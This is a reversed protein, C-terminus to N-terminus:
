ASAAALTDLQQTLSREYVDDGIRVRIGALLSPEEATSATIPRSYLRSLAAAIDTAATSPLAGAYEIRAHGRNHERAVLRQYERLVAAAHVPPKQEFWALVAQVASESLRGNEISLRLLLKATARVQKTASM